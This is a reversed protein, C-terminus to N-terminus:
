LLSPLIFLFDSWFGNLVAYLVSLVGLVESFVIVDLIDGGFCHGHGGFGLSSRYKVFSLVSLAVIKTTSLNSGEKTGGLGIFGVPVDFDM